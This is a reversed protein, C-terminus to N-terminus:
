FYLKDKKNTFVRGVPYNGYKRRMQIEFEVGDNTSKGPYVVNGNSVSPQKSGFTHAKKNIDQWQKTQFSSPQTKFDKSFYDEQNLANINLENKKELITAYITTFYFLM